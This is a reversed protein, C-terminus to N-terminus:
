KSVWVAFAVNGRALLCSTTFVVSL